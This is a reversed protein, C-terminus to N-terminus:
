AMVEMIEQSSHIKSRLREFAEVVENAQLDSLSDKIILEYPVGLPTWYHLDAPFPKYLGVIPIGLSAGLHVASTDPTFLYECTSLQSAFDAYSHTIQAARVRPNDAQKIIENLETTSKPDAFILVENVGECDAIASAIKANNEIPVTRSEVGASINYGVRGQVKPLTAVSLTSHLDVNEPDIGFPRLLEAIRRAIHYRARDIRPVLVNYVSANEKEIGITYRAGIMAALISSTASANDMLDILVDIKLKRIDRLMSIDKLFNKHYIFFEAKGPLLPAIGKNNEGLLVMFKAMPYKGHLSVMLPTSIIADGLRDQRLFLIKPSSPLELPLAASTRDRRSLFSIFM